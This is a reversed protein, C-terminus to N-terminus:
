KSLAFCISLISGAEQVKSVVVAKVALLKTARHGVSGLNGTHFSIAGEEFYLLCDLPQYCKLPLNQGRLIVENKQPKGLLRKYGFPWLQIDCQFISILKDSKTM